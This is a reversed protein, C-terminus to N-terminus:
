PADEVYTFIGERKFIKSPHLRHVKGSPMGVVILDPDPHLGFRYSHVLGVEDDVKVKIRGTALIEKKCEEYTM